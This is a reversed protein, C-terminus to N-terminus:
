QRSIKCLSWCDIFKQIHLLLSLSLSLSVKLYSNLEAPTSLRRALFTSSWCSPFLFRDNSITVKWSAKFLNPIRGELFYHKWHISTPIPLFARLKVKISCVENTTWVTCVWQSLSSDFFWSLLRDVLFISFHFYISGTLFVNGFSLARFQSDWDAALFRYCKTQNSMLKCFMLFCEDRLLLFSEQLLMIRSRDIFFQNIVM